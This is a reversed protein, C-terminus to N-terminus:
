PKSIQSGVIKPNYRQELKIYTPRHVEGGVIRYTKLSSPKSGGSLIHPM